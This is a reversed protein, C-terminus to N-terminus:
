KRRNQVGPWSGAYVVKLALRQYGIKNDAIKGRNQVHRCKRTRFFEDFGTPSAPSARDHRDQGMVELGVVADIIGLWGHSAINGKM